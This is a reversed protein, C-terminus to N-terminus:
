RPWLNAHGRIKVNPDTTSFAATGLNYAFYNLGQGNTMIWNLKTKIPKGDNLMYAGGAGGVPSDFVGIRRIKRSQVEKDLLDTENWSTALELYAEIEALTYDSHAVGVEVPGIDNGISVGSLSYTAVVSSVLTRDIVTDTSILVATRSALTGLDGDLDLNGKVYRGMKRRSSRRKAASVLVVFLVIAAIAASYLGIM